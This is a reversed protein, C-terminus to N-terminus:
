LHLFWPVLLNSIRLKCKPLFFSFNKIEVYLSISYDEIYILNLFCLMRKIYWKHLFLIVCFLIYIYKHM